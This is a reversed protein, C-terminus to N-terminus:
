QYLNPLSGNIISQSICEPKKRGAGLCTNMIIDMSRQNDIQKAGRSRGVLYNYMTVSVNRIPDQNSLTITVDRAITM